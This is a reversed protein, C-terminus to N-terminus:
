KGGKLAMIAALFAIGIVAGYGVAEIISLGVRIFDMYAVMSVIVLFFVMAFFVQMMPVHVDIVTGILPWFTIFFVGTAFLWLFFHFFDGSFIYVIAVGLCIASPLLLLKRNM